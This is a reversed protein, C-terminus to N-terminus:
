FNKNLNGAECIIRSISSIYMETAHKLLFFQFTFSWLSCFDKYTEISKKISIEGVCALLVDIDDFWSDVNQHCFITIAVGQNETQFSLLKDENVESQMRGM